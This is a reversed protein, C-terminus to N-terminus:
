KTHQRVLALVTDLTANFKELSLRYKEAAEQWAKQFEKERDLMGDIRKEYKADKRMYYVALAILCAGVAGVNIISGYITPEQKAVEEILTLFLHM